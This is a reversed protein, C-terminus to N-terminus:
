PFTDKRSIANSIINQDVKRNIIMTDPIVVLVDEIYDERRYREIMMDIAHLDKGFSKLWIGPPGEIAQCEWVGKGIRQVDSFCTAFGKQKKLILIMSFTPFPQVLDEQIIPKVQFVDDQMMQSIRDNVKEEDSGTLSALMEESARGDKVLFRLLELDKKGPREPIEDPLRPIYHATVTMPKAYREMARITSMLMDRDWHVVEVLMFDDMNPYVQAVQPLSSVEEIIRDLDKMRYHLKVFTTDYGFMRRDFFASFGKVIKSRVLLKIRREVNEPSISLKSSLFPADARGHANLLTLLELDKADM